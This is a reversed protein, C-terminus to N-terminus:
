TPTLFRWLIIDRCDYFACSLFYCHEISWQSVISVELSQNISSQTQPLLTKLRSIFQSQAVSYSFPFLHQLAQGEPLLMINNEFSSLVRDISDFVIIQTKAKNACM